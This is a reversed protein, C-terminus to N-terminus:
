VNEQDKKKQYINFCEQSCFKGTQQGERYEFERGCVICKGIKRPKKLSKVYCEYSCFKKKLYRSWSESKKPILKGCVQCYRKYKM